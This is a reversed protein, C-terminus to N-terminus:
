ADESQSDVTHSVDKSYRVTVPEGSSSNVVLFGNSALLALDEDGLSVSLVDDSNDVMSVLDSLYFIYWHGDVGRRSSKFSGHEALNDLCSSFGAMKVETLEKGGTLIRWHEDDTFCVSKDLSKGFAKVILVGAIAGFNVTESETEKWWQSITWSSSKGPSKCEIAVRLGDKTVGTLDGQDLAGTKPLRSVPLGTQESLYRATKTEFDTGSKKASRRNRAM